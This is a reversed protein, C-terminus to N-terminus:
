ADRVARLGPVSPAARRRGGTVSGLVGQVAHVGGAVSGLVTRASAAVDDVLEARVVPPLSRGYDALAEATSYRPVYGIEERLVQTDIVRGFNLFRMQEPSWDVMRAWRTTRGLSGMAPEPLPLAVRGLRRIAQSLLLTGDAGVNATGVFDGTAARTLVAVADDEHLLQLRADHGLATPVVPMRLFGSLLSDIRPGILNTFRLVAVGVDPRRRAFARVYGEIDLSDKAFGGGPVRRAQMTETFVAPDRSSAGYVASTSKLVLRRVAPSRQCAALLQMTGIVNLEKMSVRGGAGAPTASINMHVVTDVSASEIVKGILPSRIDARVFETRGLRRLVEPAPPVTDVGIVRTIAPDAALEAALAGGLWRSVGTVLVVAPPM